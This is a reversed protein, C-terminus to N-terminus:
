PAAVVWGEVERACREAADDLEAPRALASLLREQDDLVWDRVATVQRADKIPHPLHKHDFLRPWIEALVVPGAGASSAGLRREWETEFPWLRGRGALEPRSLLWHITPLGLLAQSGVSATTYLKWASQIGLSALRKEVLRYEPLPFPRPKTPQLDSFLRGQPHGWFPGRPCGSRAQIQRNLRGAVQFRNNTGDPHDEILEALSACLARGSGLGSGAPYGFPFDFGILVPGREAAALELIRGRAEQRTRMYEPEPRQGGRGWAIWCRDRSPRAPGRTSAASWDAMVVLAFTVAQPSRDRLM